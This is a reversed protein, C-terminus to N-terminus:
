KSDKGYYLCTDFMEVDDVQKHNPAGRLYKEVIFEHRRQIIEYKQEVDPIWSMLQSRFIFLFAVIVAFILYRNDFAESWNQFTPLTFCFLASNSVISLTCILSFIDYWTGIDKTPMPIPRRVLKLLKLKDVHMELWLGIFLMTTSLPFAISFLTIYGFQIALELFDDITGDNELTVYDEQMLQSEIDSRLDGEEYESDVVQKRTKRWRKFVFTGYPYGLEIINKGYSVLFISILQTSLEDVCIQEDLNNVNCRIFAIYILSNFSNVFQFLFTKVVLSDEYHNQTKHNELNTLIKVVKSYIINFVQIQIANIVSCVADAYNYGNSIMYDKGKLIILGAVIAIIICIIGISFIASLIFYKFRSREPYFVEEMDDTIPSRRLDGKFQPRAIELKEYETTGWMVSLGSERRKWYELFITAYVTIFVCFLANATLVVPHSVSYVQQLTFVILGIISPLVLSVQFCKLFEFYLALKEGFYNRIRSLPIKQNIISTKWNQGLTNRNTDNQKIETSILKMNIEEENTNKVIRIQTGLLMWSNHLPFHAVIVDAEILSNLNIQTYIYSTLLRIREINKFLSRKGSPDIEHTRWLSNLEDQKGARRYEAFPAFMGDFGLRDWLTRLKQGKPLGTNVKCLSNKLLAKFLLMQNKHEKIENEIRPLGDKLLGLYVKYAQWQALTVGKPTYKYSIRETNKALSLARSVFKKVSKMTEKIEAQCKQMEEQLGPEKLSVEPVECKLMHFPRLSDDCPFMSIVDTVALELEKRYRIREAETELDEEDASIIFFLYRGDTSILNKVKLTLHSVLKVLITNNCLGIFDKPKMQLRKFGNEFKEYTGGNKYKKGPPLDELEKFADTFALIENQFGITQQHASVQKKARFSNKYFQEAEEPKVSKQDDPDFDPNHVVIVYDWVAENIIVKSKGSSEPFNGLFLDKLHTVGTISADNLMQSLDKSEEHYPVLSREGSETKKHRISRSKNITEAAKPPPQEKESEKKEDSDKKDDTAKHEDSDQQLDNKQNLADKEEDKGPSIISSTNKIPPLKVVKSDPSGIRFSDNISDPSLEM